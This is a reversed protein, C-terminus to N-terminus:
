DYVSRGALNKRMEEVLKGIEEGLGKKDARTDYWAVLQGATRMVFPDGPALRAATGVRKLAGSVDGRKADMFGRVAWAVGNSADRETVAKAQKEAMEPLGFDVMKRVYAVDIAPDNPSAAVAEAYAAVASSPDPAKAIADAGTSKPAAAPAKPAAGGSDPAEQACISGTLLVLSAAALGTSLFMRTRM